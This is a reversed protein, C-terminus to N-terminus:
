KAIPLNKDYLGAIRLVEVWSANKGGVHKVITIPSPYAKHNRKFRLYDMKTFNTGLHNSVQHLIEICKKKNYKCRRGRKNTTLQIINKNKIIKPKKEPIAKEIIPTLLERKEEIM